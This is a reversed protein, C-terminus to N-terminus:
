LELFNVKTKIAISFPFAAFNAAKRATLIYVHKLLIILLNPM